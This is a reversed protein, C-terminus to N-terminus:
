PGLHVKVGVTLEAEVGQWVDVTTSWMAHDLEVLTDHHEGGADNHREVRDLEARWGAQM